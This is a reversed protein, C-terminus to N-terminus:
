KKLKILIENLRYKTENINSKTQIINQKIIYKTLLYKAKKINQM